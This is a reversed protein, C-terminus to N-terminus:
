AVREPSLERVAVNFRGVASQIDDVAARIEAQVREPAPGPDGIIHIHGQADRYILPGDGEGALVTVYAEFQKENIVFRSPM